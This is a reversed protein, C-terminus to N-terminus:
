ERLGVAELAEPRSGFARGSVVMGEQFTWVVAFHQTVPVGSQSGRGAMRQVILVHDGLDVAEEVEVVWDVTQQIDDMMGRLGDRGKYTGGTVISEFTFDRALRVQMLADLADRDGRALAEYAAQITQVNAQSM